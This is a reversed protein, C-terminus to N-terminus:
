VGSEKGIFRIIMFHKEFSRNKCQYRLNTIKTKYTIPFQKKDCIPCHVWGNKIIAQKDEIM